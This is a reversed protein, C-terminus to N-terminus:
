LSINKLDICKRWVLAYEGSWHMKKLDICLRWISAYEELLHMNKLYTCIIWTLAYEESRHLNKLDICTRSILAYVFVLMRWDQKSTLEKELARADKSTVQLRDCFTPWGTLQLTQMIKRCRKGLFQKSTLCDIIMPYIMQQWSKRQRHPLSM